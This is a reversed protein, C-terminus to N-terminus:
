RTWPEFGQAGVLLLFLSKRPLFAGETGELISGLEAFLYCCLYSQQVM